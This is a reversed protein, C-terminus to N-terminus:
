PLSLTWDSNVYLLKFVWLNLSLRQQKREVLCLFFLFIKFINKQWMSVNLQAKKTGRAFCVSSVNTLTLHSTIERSQHGREHSNQYLCCAPSVSYLSCLASLNFSICKNGRLGSHNVSEICLAVVCLYDQTYYLQLIYRVINEWPLFLLAWYLLWLVIASNHFAVGCRMALFGSLHLWWASTFTLSEAKTSTYKIKWGKNKGNSDSRFTVHVQYSGTDIRAPLTSGCYPGYEQGATSIKWFSVNFLFFPHQNTVWMVWQHRALGLYALFRMVTYNIVWIPCTPSLNDRLCSSSYM